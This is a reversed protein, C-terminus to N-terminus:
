MVGRNPKGYDDAITFRKVCSHINLFVLFFNAFNKYSIEPHYVKFILRSKGRKKVKGSNGCDRVVVAVLIIKRIYVSLIVLINIRASLDTKCSAIVGVRQATAPLDVVAARSHRISWAV